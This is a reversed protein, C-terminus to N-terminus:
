LQVNKKFMEFQKAFPLHGDIVIVPEEKTPLEMEKKLHNFVKVSVKSTGRKENRALATKEDTQIWVIHYRSNTKKAMRKLKQRSRKFNFNADYIVNVGKALLKEALYDLLNFVAAHEEPTYTPKEFLTHRIKDASLHFFGAEKALRESFYTKGSGPYGLM